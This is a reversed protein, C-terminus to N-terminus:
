IEIAMEFSIIDFKRKLIQVHVLTTRTSTSVM